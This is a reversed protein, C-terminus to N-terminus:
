PAPAPSLAFAPVSQPELQPQQWPSRGFDQREIPAGLGRPSDPGFRNASQQIGGTGNVGTMTSVASNTTMAPNMVFMSPVQQVSQSSNLNTGAMQGGQGASAMPNGGQANMAQGNLMTMRQNAVMSNGLIPSGPQNAAMPNGAMPNMAMGGNGMSLNQGAANVMMNQGQPYSVAPQMSIQNQASGGMGNISGMSGTGNMGAGSTMQQQLQAGMMNGAAGNGGTTMGPQIPMPGTSNFRSRPARPIPITTTTMHAAGSDGSQQANNMSTASAVMVSQLAAPQADTGSAQIVGSNTTATNGPSSDTQQYSAQQVAYDKAWNGLPLPQAPPLNAAKYKATLPDAASDKTSRTGSLLLHPSQDGSVIEGKDSTFRVILSIQRQEGGVDDWPLWISYSHGLGTKSYNAQFQDASFVYKRDPVINAPDRNTEDFAYVVLSGKVKVPKNPNKGYFYIRGGFGRVGKEKAPSNQVAETWFAAVQTPSEFKGDKGMEWPVNKRLDFETACGALAVIGVLSSLMMRSIQQMRNMKAM